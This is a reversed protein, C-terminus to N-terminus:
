LGFHNWIHLNIEESPKDWPSLHPHFPILNSTIWTFSFIHHRSSTLLPSNNKIKKVFGTYSLSIKNLWALALVIKSNLVNKKTIIDLNYHQYESYTKIANLSYSGGSEGKNDKAMRMQLRTPVAVVIPWPLTITVNPPSKTGSPDSFTTWLYRSLWM